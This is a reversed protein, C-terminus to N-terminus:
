HMAFCVTAVQSTRYYKMANSTGSWCLSIKKDFCSDTYVWIHGQSWTLSNNTYLVAFFIVRRAETDALGAWHRCQRRSWLNRKQYIHTYRCMKRHSSFLGISEDSLFQNKCSYMNYFMIYSVDVYQAADWINVVTKAALALGPVPAFELLDATVILAEHIVDATTGLVSLVARAM